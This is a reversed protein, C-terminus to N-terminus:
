PPTLPATTAHRRGDEDAAAALDVALRDLLLWGEASLRLVGDREAGLGRAAWGDALSRV